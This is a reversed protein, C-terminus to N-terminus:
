IQVNGTRVPFWHLDHEVTHLENKDSEVIIVCNATPQHDPSKAINKKKSFFIILLTTTNTHM